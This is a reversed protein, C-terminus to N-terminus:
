DKTVRSQRHFLFEAFLLDDPTDIDLSDKASMIYAVTGAGYLVGTRVQSPRMVLIAPGNRAYLVPVEQRRLVMEGSSQWPHLFGNKVDMLASPHFRHPVEVVSVVTDAGTERFLAVAEDIQAATRFPSTPQLLVIAEVETGRLELWDLAHAIVSLSSATDSGLEAPRMFPVELGLERGVRAIAEDDTSLITRSLSKAQLAADATYALLPRGACPAINKGPIGKSGGRAPILGVIAM